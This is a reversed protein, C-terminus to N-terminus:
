LQKRFIVVCYRNRSSDMQEGKYIFRPTPLVPHIEVSEENWIYKEGNKTVTANIPILMIININHNKWQQWAKEIFKQTLSNPPNCWVDAWMKNWEWNNLVCWNGELADHNKDFYFQCLKNKYTAAADLQPIIKHKRCLSEFLDQPTEWEDSISSESRKRQHLQSTKVM